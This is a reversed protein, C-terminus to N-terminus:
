PELPDIRQLMLARVTAEYQARDFRVTFASVEDTGIEETTGSQYAIDRWEVTTDSMWVDASVAGCALDGCQECFLLGARGDTFQVWPDFGSENELLLARLSEILYPDGESDATIFTIDRCPTGDPFALRDRLPTGDITWDLFRLPPLATAEIRLRFLGRVKTKWRESEAWRTGLVSVPAPSDPM